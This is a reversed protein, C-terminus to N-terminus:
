RKAQAGSKFLRPATEVLLKRWVPYTHGGDTEHYTATTGMLRWRTRWSRPARGLVGDQKGVGVFFLDVPPRRAPQAAPPRPLAGSLRRPDHGAGSCGSRVSRDRHGCASRCPRPAGWRCGWSPATARGPRRDPLAVRGAAGRGELLYREFVITTPPSARRRGPASRCRTGWPMVVIMPCRRARRRDPQRPDPEGPRGDDLGGGPRQERAAPVAGPLAQARAQDYGPPTYVFVQRTAGGARSAHTHVHLDGHPVDRFEWPQGGPIEVMSASTRARLKM